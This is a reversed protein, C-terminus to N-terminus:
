SVELFGLYHSKQIRQLIPKLPPATSRACHGHGAFSLGKGDERQGM